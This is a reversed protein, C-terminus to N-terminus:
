PPTYSGSKFAGVITTGDLTPQSLGSGVSWGYAYVSWSILVNNQLGWTSQWGPVISFDPMNNGLLAGNLLNQYAGSVTVIVNRSAGGSSQSYSLLWQANYQSQITLATRVRIVGGQLGFTSVTPTNLDAGLTVTPSAASSTVLSAVRGSTLTSGAVIGAMATFTHLDGAIVSAAPVVNVQPTASSGPLSSGVNVSTGNGTMFTASAFVSEGGAVGQVNVTRPVTTIASAGGFNLTGFSSNNGPNLGRQIIVRDAQLGPLPLRAAVLDHVGDPINSLTFNPSFSNIATASRSGFSVVAGDTVGLGAVSGTVTKGGLSACHGAGEAVLEDKTGYMIHLTTATAADQTVWAVGASNGVTISYTNPSSPLVQQWTSGTQAAFWIPLESSAGCFQFTTNGTQGGLTITLTMQVSVTAIGAGSASITVVSSGQPTNAPVSFTISTGNGGTPNVGLDATVGNPLGSAAFTVAGTFNSRVISVSTSGTGGQAISVSTRSLTISTISAVPNVVLSLAVTADAIGTGSGKLTIPYTGAVTQATTSFTATISNGTTPSPSFTATVGAPLSGSVALSVDGLYETRNIIITASVNLGGASTTLTNSGSVSLAISAPRPVVALTYTATANAVGSGSATVTLPYSGEPTNLSVAVAVTFTDASQTVTTTVGTPAGAVAVAVNGTFNTRAITAKFTGSGSQSISATAPALSVTITPKATVTLSATFTQDALGSAKARITFNYSGAPVSAGVAVALSGTTTGSGITSPTLTATVGSPLGEASVEVAGTFGGTRTVTATISGSAGQEVSLSSASLSVAFGQVPPPPSTGGDGGGGCAAVAALGLSAIARLLRLHPRMHPRLPLRVQPSNGSM